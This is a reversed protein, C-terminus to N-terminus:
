HETGQERNGTGQERVGSGQDRIGSGEKVGSGQDSGGVRAWGQIRNGTEQNRVTFWVRKM